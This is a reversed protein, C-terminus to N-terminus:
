NTRGYLSQQEEKAKNLDDALKKQRAFYEPTLRSAGGATGIRENPLPEKGSEAASAANIVRQDVDSLIQRKSPTDNSNSNKSASSLESKLAQSQPPETGEIAPESINVKHANKLGQPNSTYVTNGHVDVGKYISEDAFCIGQTLFSFSFSFSFTLILINKPLHAM